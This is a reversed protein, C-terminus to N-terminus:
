LPLTSSQTGPRHAGAFLGNALITKSFDAVLGCFLTPSDFIEPPDPASRRAVPAFSGASAPVVARSPNGENHRPLTSSREGHSRRSSLGFEMPRSAAYGNGQSISVRPFHHGFGGNVSLAM